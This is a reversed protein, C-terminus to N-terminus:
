TTPTKVLLRPPCSASRSLSVIKMGNVHNSTHTDLAGTPEDALLVKPKTILARAIAIRQQEGGSLESPAHNKRDKLGVMDLYELAINNRKRRKIKQYYLPLSVNEMANKFSLLNFQQFVFGIKKNRINAAKTESFDEILMGDLFYRGSDYTDLIGLINLLTSKGSGSPGMISVFEGQEINLSIDKLVHLASKGTRYSKNLQEIRIM